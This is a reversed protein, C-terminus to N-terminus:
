ASRNIIEAADKMEDEILKHSIGDYEIAEWCVGHLELWDKTFSLTKHQVMLDGTGHFLYVDPTSLMEKELKDKGCVIGAFPFVGGLRYRRSLGAFIALMAGQSFGMLFTDKNSVHYKKQLTSIFKNIVKAMESTRDGTRNYIDIIEDISADPQRRRRDPDIDVLAYWQKKEPNRECPTDSEPVIILTDKLEKALIEAYPAVDAICSNYGHLFVILKNIKKTNGFSQYVLEGM